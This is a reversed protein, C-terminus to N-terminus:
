NRKKRSDLRTRTCSSTNESRKKPLILSLFFYASSSLLSSMLPFTPPGCIQVVLSFLYSIDLKEQTSGSDQTVREKLTRNEKELQLLANAHNATTEKKAEQQKQLEMRLM